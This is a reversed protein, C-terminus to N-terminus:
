RQTGSSSSAHTRLNPMPAKFSLVFFCFTALVGVGKVLSAMVLLAEEDEEEEEWEVGGVVNRVGVMGGESDSAVVSPITPCPWQLGGPLLGFLALPPVSQKFGCFFSGTRHAIHGAFLLVVKITGWVLAIPGGERVEKLEVVEM